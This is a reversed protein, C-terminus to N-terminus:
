PDLGKSAVTIRQSLKKSTVKRMLRENFASLVHLMLLRLWSAYPMLCSACLLM